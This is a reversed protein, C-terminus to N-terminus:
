MDVKSRFGIMIPLRPKVYGGVQQYRYKLVRGKFSDAQKWWAEREVISVGLFTGIKFEEKTKLDRVIFGGLRGNAVKGAKHSSRASLGIANKLKENINTEQEYVDLIEAEGDLFRKLAILYGERLTSRGHKYPSDLSRLMVGEHGLQLVKTEFALLHDMDRILVQHVHVVHSHAACLKALAENRARFPLTDPEILDFACMRVDPKGDVSMVASETKRYCGVDKSNGVILESDALEMGGFLDQVHQNPIPKNSRSMVVGNKVYARIGDLKVSALLPFTLTVGDLSKIHASLTVRFISDAM